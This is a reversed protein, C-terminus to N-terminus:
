SINQENRENGLVKNTLASGMKSLKSAANGSRGGVKCYVMIPKDKDLKAVQADWDEDYTKGFAFGNVTGNLQMTWKGERGYEHTVEAQDFAMIHDSKGDGWDVVFDYKGDEELPLRISTPTKREAERGEEDYGM